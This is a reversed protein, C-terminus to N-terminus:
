PVAARTVTGLECNVKGKANLTDTVHWKASTDSDVKAVAAVGDGVGNGSADKFKVHITYASSKSSHNRITGAATPHGGNPSAKCSTITVDKAATKSSAACAPLMAVAFVIVGTTACARGSFRKTTLM